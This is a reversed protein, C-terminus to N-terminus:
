RWLEPMAMRLKSLFLQAPFNSAKSLTVCCTLLRPKFMVNLVREAWDLCCIWLRWTCFLMTRNGFWKKALHHVLLTKWVCSFFSFIQDRKYSYKLSQEWGWKGFCTWLQWFPQFRAAHQMPSHQATPQHSPIPLLYLGIAWRFNM